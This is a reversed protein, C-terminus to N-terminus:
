TEESRIRSSGQISPGAGVILSVLREHNEVSPVLNGVTVGRRMVVARDAVQTVHELNHSIMIVSVGQEPLRRILELVSNSERVGLAATPEDLILVKTAFAVARACAIAQRQGGSMLGVLTSENGINVSLGKIVENTHRKMTTERLYGIHGLWKPWTVERGVYFNAAGSLNDFLALEQYVTEIGLVRADHPNKVNIPRGDLEITGADFSYVGSICKIFTSKGAGNDGLLAVIEGKQLDLSADAVAIVGSFRKRAGRVSLVPPQPLSASQPVSM